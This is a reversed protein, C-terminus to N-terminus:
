RCSISQASLRVVFPRISVSAPLGLASGNGHLFADWVTNALTAQRSLHANAIILLCPFDGLACESTLTRAVLTVITAAAELMRVDGDMKGPSCALAYVKPVLSDAYKAVDVHGADIKTELVTHLTALMALSYLRDESLDLRTLLRIVLTEFLVPAICLTRLNSLARAAKTQAAANSPARDPLLGFLLPLTTEEVHKPSLKTTALFLDLM